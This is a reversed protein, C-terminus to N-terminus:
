EGISFISKLIRKIEKDEMKKIDNLSIDNPMIYDAYRKLQKKRKNPDICNFVQATFERELLRIIEKNDEYDEMKALEYIYVLFYLTIHRYGRYASPKESGYGDNKNINPFYFRGVEILSSLKSLLQKKEKNSTIGLLEIIVFVTKEYWELLERKYQEALEYKKTNTIIAYIGGVISIGLTVGISVIAIYDGMQMFDNKRGGGNYSLLPTNM